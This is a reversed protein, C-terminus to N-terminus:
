RGAGLEVAREAAGPRALLRGIVGGPGSRTPAAASQATTALEEAQERLRRADAQAQDLAAAFDQELQSLGQAFGGRMGELAARELSPRLMRDFIFPVLWAAVVIMISSFAFNSGLYDADRLGAQAYSSVLKFAVWLLAITPLVVTLFGTVRRLAREWWRGPKALAARVADGIHQQMQPGAAKAVRELQVRIPGAAIGTRAVAVELAGLFADLKSQTWADWLGSTLYRVDDTAPSGSRNSAAGPEGGRGAAEGATAGSIVPQLMQRAQAFFGSNRVALRAASTRIPWDVGERLSASTRRWQEALVLCLDEWAEEEGLHATAARLAEQLDHLRAAHGVRELERVGHAALVEQLATQLQPFEDPTPARGTPEPACSTCLILPQEFGAARLIRSFDDRQPPTGEDWRNMIFLWGHTNERERLVRWGVDDRYREPSVVYCLLDVHALWALATRRNAVETSDIDPADLWVVDRWAAASHRQIRERELPLEPPLEALEVSDHVYLTVEHSTPREVGVRAIASAALRNLLSSKGVGTGGFLAVVLPRTQRSSFLDAPTRQEVAQFRALDADSLWGAARASSFWADATEFLQGFTSGM